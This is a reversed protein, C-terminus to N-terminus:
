QRRESHAFLPCCLVVLLVFELVVGRGPHRGVAGDRSPTHCSLELLVNFSGDDKSLPSLPYLRHSIPLKEVVHERLIM